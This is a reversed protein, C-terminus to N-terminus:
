TKTVNTITAKTSDVYNITVTAVLAGGSGGTKFTWVDQTSTQSQAAYDYNPLNLGNSGSLVPLPNASSLLSEAGSGGIDFAVVQTHIGATKEIDRITNGGTGTNLQTNDAM